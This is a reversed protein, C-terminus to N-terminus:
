NKSTVGSGDPKGRKASSASAINGPSPGPFDRKLNMALQMLRAIQSNKAAEPVDLAHEAGSAVLSVIGAADLAPTPAVTTVAASALAAAVKFVPAGAVAPAELSRQPEAAAAVPQAPRALPSIQAAAPSVSPAETSVPAPLSMPLSVILAEIKTFDPAPTSTGTGPSDLASTPAPTTATTAAAAAAAPPPVGIKPAGVAVMEEVEPRSGVVEAAATTVLLAPRTKGRKVNRESAQLVPNWKRLVEHQKQLFETRIKARNHELGWRGQETLGSEGAPGLKSALLM